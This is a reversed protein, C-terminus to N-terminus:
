NDKKSSSFIYGSFYKFLYLSFEGRREHCEFKLCLPVSNPHNPNSEIFMKEVYYIIPVIQNLPTIEDFNTSSGM